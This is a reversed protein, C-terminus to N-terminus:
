LPHATWRLRKCPGIVPSPKRDRRDETRAADFDRDDIWGAALRVEIRRGVDELAAVCSHESGSVGDVPPSPLVAQQDRACPIEEAAAGVDVHGVDRATRVPAAVQIRRGSAYRETRRDPM